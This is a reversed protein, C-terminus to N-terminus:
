VWCIIEDEVWIAVIVIITKFIVLLIHVAVSHDIGSLSVRLVWIRVYIFVFRVFGVSILVSPLIVCITELRM